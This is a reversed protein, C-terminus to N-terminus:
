GTDGEEQRMRGSDTARRPDVQGATGYPHRKPIHFRFTSGRGPESEVTITGGHAEIAMKCFTLGLGVSTRQRESPEVTTFKDFLVAHFAKPIGRGFDRVKVGMRSNSDITRVEVATGPSSARIANGILNLLVRHLIEPDAEGRVAEGTMVLGVDVMRAQLEMARIAKEIIAKMDIEEQNLPMQGSELRCIDLLAQAMNTVTQAGNRALDLCTTDVNKLDSQLMDLAGSIAMLPSRIDHVIMHTLNDKLEELSKLDEYSGRLASESQALAAQAQKRHRIETALRRNWYVLVFIVALAGLVIKGALTYDFAHEYQVWVWKRYFATRDAEPLSVLAKQLIGSFLPWDKRVAMRLKYAYPTEGAIKIERHRHKSLYFNGPHVSGIFVDIEGRSLRDFADAMTQARMLPLEPADRRMWEDTAYNAVVAVRLGQLDSMNRIYPM